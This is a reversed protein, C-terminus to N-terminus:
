REIIRWVFLESGAATLLLKEDPSFIVKKVEGSHGTFDQFTGHKADVLEVLRTDTGIAFLHGQPSVDM